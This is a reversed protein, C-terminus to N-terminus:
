YTLFLRRNFAESLPILIKHAIMCRWSLLYRVEDVAVHLSYFIGIRVEYPRVKLLDGGGEWQGTNDIFTRSRNVVSFVPTM